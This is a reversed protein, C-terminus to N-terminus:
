NIPATNEANNRTTNFFGTNPSLQLETANAHHKTRSNNALMMRLEKHQVSRRWVM